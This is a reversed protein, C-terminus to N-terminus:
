NMQQFLLPLQTTPSRAPPQPSIRGFSQASRPSNVSHRAETEGPELQSQLVHRHVTLTRELGSIRVHHGGPCWTNRSFRFSNLLPNGWAFMCVWAWIRRLMPLSVGWTWGRSVPLWLLVSHCRSLLQLKGGLITVEACERFIDDESAM